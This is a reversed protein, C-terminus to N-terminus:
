LKELISHELRALYTLQTTLAAARPVDDAAFAASLRRVVEAQARKNAELLGRLAAPDDTAEVEERAELV